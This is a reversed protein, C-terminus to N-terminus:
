TRWKDTGAITAKCYRRLRMAYRLCSSTVSTIGSIAGSGTSSCSVPVSCRRKELATLRANIVRRDSKSRERTVLGASELRDMMKTVGAKSLYIRRSLEVLMLEGGAVGLQKLLDQEPLSIGLEDRLHQSLANPLYSGAHVLSVWTMMFDHTSLSM